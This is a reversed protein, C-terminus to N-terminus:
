WVVSMQFLRDPLKMGVLYQRSIVGSLIVQWRANGCGVITQEIIDLASRQERIMM